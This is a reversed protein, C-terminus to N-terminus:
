ENMGLDVSGPPYLDLTLPIELRSIRQLISADLTFGGQGSESSFACFLDVRHTKSLERLASLKPEVTEVLWKLHQEAACDDGLPSELLWLSQAWVPWAPDAHRGRPEGKAHTRTPTLCLKESIGEPRLTESSIRLSARFWRKQKM